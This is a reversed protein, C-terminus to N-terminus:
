ALAKCIGQWTSNRNDIWFRADNNQAMKEAYSVIQDKNKAYLPNVSQALTEAIKMGKISDAWTTQKESGNTTATFELEVTEGNTAKVSAKM